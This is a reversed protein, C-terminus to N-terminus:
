NFSEIVKKEKKTSDKVSSYVMAVKQNPDVKEKIAAQLSSSM